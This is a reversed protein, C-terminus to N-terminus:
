GMHAPGRLKDCSTVDKKAQFLRPMRRAGKRVKKRVSAKAGGTRGNTKVFWIPIKKGYTLSSQRGTQYVEGISDITGSYRLRHKHLIVSEFRQGGAHM